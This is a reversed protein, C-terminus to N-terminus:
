QSTEREIGRSGIGRGRIDGVAECDVMCDDSVFVEECVAINGFGVDVVVGFLEERNVEEIDVDEVEGIVEVKIDESPVVTTGRVAEEVTGAKDDTVVVDLPPVDCGALVTEDVSVDIDVASVLVGSDGCDEDVDEGIWIDGTEEILEEELLEEARGALEVPHILTKLEDDFKSTHDPLDESVVIVGSGGVDEVVLGGVEGGVGVGVGGGKVEDETVGDEEGGGGSGGEDGEDGRGGEDGEDGRGGEDGVLVGEGEGEGGAAVEVTVIEAESGEDSVGISGLVAVTAATVIVDPPNVIVVAGGLTVVRIREVM